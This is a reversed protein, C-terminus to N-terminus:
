QIHWSLCPHNRHSMNSLYKVRHM